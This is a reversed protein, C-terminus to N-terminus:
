NIDFLDTMENTKAQATNSKNLLKVVPDPYALFQLNM